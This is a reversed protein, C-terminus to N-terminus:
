PLPAIPIQVTANKATASAQKGSFAAGTTMQCLSIENVDTPLATTATTNTNSGGDFTVTSKYLTDTSQKCVFVLVKFQRPNTFTVGLNTTASAVAGTNACRYTVSSITCEAKSTDAAHGAPRSTEVVWYSTGVQLGTITCTGEVTPPTAAADTTTATTCTKGSIATDTSSDFTGGATPDSYVAFAAGGVPGNNDNVKTIDLDRPAPSNLVEVVTTSGLTGTTLTPTTIPQYGTPAQTEVV